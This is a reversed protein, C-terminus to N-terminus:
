WVSLCIIRIPTVNWLPLKVLWSMIESGEIEFGEVKSGTMTMAETFDRIPMQPELDVFESLWRMSLIM